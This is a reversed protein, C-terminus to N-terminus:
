VPIAKPRCRVIVILLLVIVDIYVLLKFTANYSSFHDAIMGSLYGGLIMGFGIFFQDVAFAVDYKQSSARDRVILQSLVAKGAIAVSSICTTVLMAYYNVFYVNCLLAAIDLITALLFLDVPKVLSNTLSGVVVRSLANGIAASFTIIITNRVSIGRQLAYPVLFSHWGSWVIHSALTVGYVLIFIPDVYLDSQRLSNTIRRFIGSDDRNEDTIDQSTSTNCEEGKPSSPVSQFGNRQTSSEDLELKIAMGVPIIHAMLASIILLGGRWGYAQRLFEALLPLLVMGAGYGTLGLSFLLNYNEKAVRHLTMICCINVMCYGLGTISPYIAMQANSTAMSTLAVGIPPLCTGSILLLRRTSHHRYLAALFPAPLHCFANLLGLAIGLDTSTTGLSKNIDELYIGITKMIGVTGSTRLFTCVVLPLSPSTLIDHVRGM